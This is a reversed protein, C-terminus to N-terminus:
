VVPLVTPTVIYKTPSTVTDGALVTGYSFWTFTENSNAEFEFVDEVPAGADQIEKNLPFLINFKYAMATDAYQTIFRLPLRDSIYVGSAGNSSLDLEFVTGADGPASTPAWVYIKDTAGSGAAIDAIIQTKIGSGAATTDVFVSQPVFPTIGDVQEEVATVRNTLNGFATYQSM